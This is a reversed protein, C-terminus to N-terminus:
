SEALLADLKRLTNCNRITMGAYLDTGVLKQLASRTIYSRDIRSLIAGNSYRMEEHAANWELREMVKPSALGPLLFLVDCKMSKDNAWDAPLDAAIKALTSGRLVLVRVDFGFADAIAGELEAALEGVARRPADFLVNGSNIYTRVEAHGADEFVEKLRAMEVKNKGGVNIGRLLAVYRM